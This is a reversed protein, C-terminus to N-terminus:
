TSVLQRAIVTPDTKQVFSADIERQIESLKIRNKLRAQKSTQSNEDLDETVISDGRARAEGVYINSGSSSRSPNSAVPNPM